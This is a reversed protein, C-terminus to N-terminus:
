KKKEKVSGIAYHDIYENQNSPCMTCIWEPKGINDAFSSLDDDPSYGNYKLYKGWENNDILNHLVLTDRLNGIVGCKYLRNKYLIPNNPSGCVSHSKTAEANAPSMSKGEGKYPKRFHGFEAVTINLNDKVFCLQDSARELKVPIFNLESDQMQKKLKDILLKRRPDDRFHLSLQLEAPSFKYLWNLVPKKDLYFGNTIIKIITDPWTLRVLEIWQNLDKNMLPEGGFLCTIKPRIKDKWDTLWQTGEKFSVDGKRNYDTMTICGKCSLNCTYQIM